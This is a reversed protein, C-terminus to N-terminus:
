VIDGASSPPIISFSSPLPAQDVTVLRCARIIAHLTEEPTPIDQGLVLKYDTSNTEHCREQTAFNLQTGRRFNEINRLSLTPGRMEQSPQRGILRLGLHDGRLSIKVTEKIRTRWPGMRARRVKHKVRIRVRMRLGCKLRLQLQAWERRPDRRTSQELDFRLTVPAKPCLDDSLSQLIYRITDERRAEHYATSEYKSFLVTRWIMHAVALLFVSLALRPYVAVWINFLLFSGIFSVLMMVISLGFWTGARAGRKQHAEGELVFVRLEDLVQDVSGTFLRATEFTKARGPKM